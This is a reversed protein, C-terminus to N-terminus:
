SSKDYNQDWMFGLINCDGVPFLALWCATLLVPNPCHVFNVAGGEQPLPAALVHEEHFNAFFIGTKLLYM